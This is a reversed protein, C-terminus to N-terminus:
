DIGNEPIVRMAPLLESLVVFANCSFEGAANAVSMDCQILSGCPFIDELISVEGKGVSVFEDVDRVAVEVRVSCCVLIVLGGSVSRLPTSTLLSARSRGAALIVRFLPAGIVWAFEAM